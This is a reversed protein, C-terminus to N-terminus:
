SLTLTSTSQPMHFLGVNAAGSAASVIVGGRRGQSNCTSPQQVQQPWFDIAAITDMQQENSSPTHQCAHWHQATQMVLKTFLLM